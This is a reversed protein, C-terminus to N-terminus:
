SSRCNVPVTPSVRVLTLVLSTPKLTEKVAVGTIPLVKEYIFSHAMSVLDCM